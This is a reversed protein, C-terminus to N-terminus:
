PNSEKRWKKLLEYSEQKEPPTIDFPAALNIARKLDSSADRNLIIKAAELAFHIRKRHEVINLFREMELLLINESKDGTQAFLVLSEVVAQEYTQLLICLNKLSRSPYDKQINALVKEAQQYFEENTM